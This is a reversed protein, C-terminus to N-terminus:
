HANPVRPLLVGPSDARGAPHRRPTAALVAAGVVPWGAEQLARVAERLTAGSTVIDDVVVAAPQGTGPSRARLAGALNAARATASLGASDAVRRALQLAPRVQCGAAARSRRTLRRVHDFGRARVAAATSPVPVLVASRVGVQALLSRVARALLEGLPRALDARGREKYSLLATRLSGDYDGCFATPIGAVPRFSVGPPRCDLCFSEAPAGCSVCTLPLVLELLAAALSAIV